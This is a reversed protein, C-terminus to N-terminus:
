YYLRMQLEKYPTSLSHTPTQITDQICSDHTLTLLLWAICIFDVLSLYGIWFSLLLLFLLSKSTLYPVSVRSTTKRDVTGYHQQLGGPGTIPIVQSGSRIGQGLFGRIPKLDTGLLNRWMLTVHPLPHYQHNTTTTSCFPFPCLHFSLDSLLLVCQAVLSPKSDIIIIIIIPELSSLCSCLSFPAPPLSVCVLDLLPAALPFHLEVGHPM